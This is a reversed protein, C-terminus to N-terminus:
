ASPTDSDTDSDTQAVDIVDRECVVRRRRKRKRANAQCYARLQESSLFAAVRQETFVAPAGAGDEAADNEDGDSAEDQISLVYNVCQMRTLNNAEMHKLLRKRVPALQRALEARREKLRDLRSQLTSFSQADQEM